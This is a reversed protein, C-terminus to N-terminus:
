KEGEKEERRPPEFPLVITFTSGQGVISKLFIQGGMLEVLRKVIALGLGIGGHSRTVTGELQRFPDFIHKQDDLAIGQGTDTVDFGWHQENVKYIYVDVGGKDTFKVANNVLNVLVQQLRHTDGILQRPMNADIRSTLELGKDHAIKDMVGHLNDTLDSAQFPKFDFKLKGAEIRAQDLLDSVINLLRSSNNLIRDATNAQKENVAGYFGDRLMESYGLIANLPTRLEHSVMAVFANKMQEVEAERTFDRMVAVNGITRGKQDRVPASIVSLTRVGWKVRIPALTAQNYGVSRLIMEQDEPEVKPSQVVEALNKNLIKDLPLELLRILAPNTLIVMGRTDMVMVGDAIGQLIAQRQSAQESERTLAESLERTRDAVRQDLEKNIARVERLAQEMNRASLWSVLAVLFFGIAAFTNFLAGAQIALYWIELASLGAFIFSSAPFLLISAMIVPITFVFLSRGGALQEPTDGFMFLVMLFLLFVGSTVWGPISSNRSSWYFALCGLLLMLAGVWVAGDIELNEGSITLIILLFLMLFTLVVIGLLLVNLLKRRRKDDPDTASVDILSSVLKQISVRM